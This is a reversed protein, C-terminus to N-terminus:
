NADQKLKHELDKAKSGMMAGLTTTKSLSNMEEQVPCKRTQNNLKQQQQQQQQGKGRLDVASRTLCLLMEKGHPHCLRLGFIFQVNIINQSLLRWFLLRVSQRFAVGDRLRVCDSAASQMLRSILFIVIALCGCDALAAAVVVVVVKGYALHSMQGKTGKTSTSPSPNFTVFDCLAPEDEAQQKNIAAATSM